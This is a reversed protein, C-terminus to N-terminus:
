NLLEMEESASASNLGPCSSGSPTSVNVLLKTGDEKKVLIRRMSYYFLLEAKSGVSKRARDRHSAGCAM